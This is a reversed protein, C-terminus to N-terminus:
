RSVRLLWRNQGETRLYDLRDVLQEVLFLGYGHVQPQGPTPPTVATPDFSAGRDTVTLEVAAPGVSGTVDVTGPGDLYAHHVVNVCVEHLALELRGHLEGAGARDLLDRLWPGLERLAVLDAPLSLVSIQPAGTV